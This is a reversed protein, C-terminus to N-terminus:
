YLVRRLGRASWRVVDGATGTLLFSESAGSAVGAPNATTSVPRVDPVDNFPLPPRVTEGVKAVGSCQDIHAEPREDLATFGGVYLTGAQFTFVAVHYGYDLGSCVLLDGYGAFTSSVISNRNALAVGDVTLASWYAGGGASSRSCEIALGTGVFPVTITDGSDFANSHIGWYHNLDNAAGTGTLTLRSDRIDIFECAAPVFGMREVTVTGSVVRVTIHHVGPFLDPLSIWQDADTLLSLDMDDIVVEGDVLVDVVGQGAGYTFRISFDTCKAQAYLQDGPSSTTWPGTGTWSGGVFAPTLIRDAYGTVGHGTLQKIAIAHGPYLREPLTVQPTAPLLMPDYGAPFLAMLAAALEAHGASNPHVGDSLRSAAAYDSGPASRTTAGWGDAYPLGYHAALRALAQSFKKQVPNTTTYATGYPNGSFLVIDTNPLRHRAERIKSEIMKLSSSQKQGGWHQVGSAVVEFSADNKGTVGLILVDPAAAIAADWKDVMEWWVTRGGQAQNDKTVTVGSFRSQIQTKVLSLCDDTGPTGSTSGQLVSDGLATIKISTGAILKALAKTPLARHAFVGATAAEIAAPIVGTPSAADTEIGSAVTASLAAYFDSGPDAAVLAMIGDNTAEVDKIEAWKAAFGSWEAASVTLLEITGSLAAALTSNGTLEFAETRKVEVRSGPVADRYEFVLAYCFGGDPDYGAGPATSPLTVTFDGNGDFTLPYKGLLMTSTDTDLIADGAVNAFRIYARIKSAAFADLGLDAAGGTLTYTTAM